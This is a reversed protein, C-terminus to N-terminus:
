TFSLTIACSIFVLCLTIGQVGLIPAIPALPGDIQSYGAWLWPFGTFIWGRLWDVCLWLGPALLLYGQTNPLNIRRFVYAFLAPFLALYLVLLSILVLGVSTPLGGFKEIVVHVWAIGTGFQGLGWSLGILAAKKASQQHIFLLFGILAIPMACWFSFPAFALTAFAGCFAAGFIRVFIQPRSLEILKSLM